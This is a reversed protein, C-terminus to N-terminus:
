PRWNRQRGRENNSVDHFRYTVIHLGLIFTFDIYRLSQAEERNEKALNILRAKISAAINKIETAM